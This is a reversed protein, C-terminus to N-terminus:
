QGDTGRFVILVHGTLWYKQTCVLTYWDKVDVHVNKRRLRPSTQLPSQALTQKTKTNNTIHKTKNPGGYTLFFSHLHLLLGVM